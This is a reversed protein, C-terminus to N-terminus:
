ETVRELHRSSYYYPMGSITVEWAGLHNVGTIVGVKGSHGGCRVRVTDGRTLMSFIFEQALADGAASQRALLADFEDPTLRDDPHM